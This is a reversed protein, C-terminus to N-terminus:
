FPVLEQDLSGILVNSYMEARPLRTTLTSGGHGSDAALAVADVPQSNQWPERSWGSARDNAGGSRSVGGTAMRRSTRIPM